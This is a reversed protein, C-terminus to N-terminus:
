DFVGEPPDIVIRGSALDVTPVFSRTFPLLAPESGKGTAIELLDGAGHEQVDKVTGLKTGGTDHVDLGILDSYYFEDEDPEPFRDRPVYLDTGKLADAQEKTDVGSLRASIGNKISVGLTLDFSRGDATLLPAYAAIAEPQACYSKVRLDGRVGFAGAIQGVLILDDM